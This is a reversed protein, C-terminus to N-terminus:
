LLTLFLWRLSCPSSTQLELVTQAIFHPGLALIRHRFCCSCRRDQYRRVLSSASMCPTMPSALLDVLM